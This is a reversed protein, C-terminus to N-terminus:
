GESDPDLLLASSSRVTDAVPKMNEEEWVVEDLDQTLCVNDEM